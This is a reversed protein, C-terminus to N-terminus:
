RVIAKGAARAQLINNFDKGPMNPKIIRVKRGERQWRAAAGEAANLGPNRAKANVGDDDAAITVERIEAPLVM